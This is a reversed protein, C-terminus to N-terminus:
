KQLHDAVFQEMAEETEFSQIDYWNKDDQYFLAFSPEHEILNTWSSILAIFNDYTMVSYDLKGNHCFQLTTETTIDKMRIRYDDEYADSIYILNNKQELTVEVGPFRGIKCFADPQSILDKYWEAWDRPYLEHFLNTICFPLNENDEFRIDMFSSKNAKFEYFDYKKIHM